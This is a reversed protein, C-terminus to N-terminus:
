FPIGNEQAIDVGISVLFRLLTTEDAFLYTPYGNIIQERVGIRKGNSKLKKYKRVFRRFKIAQDKNLWLHFPEPKEDKLVSAYGWARGISIVEGDENEIENTKSFYKGIYAIAQRSNHIKRFSKRHCAVVLANDDDTGIIEIWKTLIMICTLQWDKEQKPSLGALAIHYHPIYMGKLKGSKRDTFEKKWIEKLGQKHIFRKLKKLCENAFDRREALTKGVMVDDPFTFDIWLGLDLISALFQKLRNASGRSVKTIIGRKSPQRHLVPKQIYLRSESSIQAAYQAKQLPTMETPPSLPLLQGDVYCHDGLDPQIGYRNEKYAYHMETKRYIEHRSKENDPKFHKRQNKSKNMAPQCPRFQVYNPHIFIDEGLFGPRLGNPIRLKGNIASICAPAMGAAERGDAITTSNPM